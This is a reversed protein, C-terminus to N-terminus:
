AAETFHNPFTSERIDIVTSMLAYGKDTVRYRRTRPLKAILSHARLLQLLRSRRASQRRKDLDTKPRPENLHPSLDRSRFGRLHHEGRLVALFLQQDERSLPNLARRKRGRFSARRTAQDLLDHAIQPDEVVALGNLYRGNAQYAVRAFHSLMAVSKILPFWDFVREGQRTGWRRVRFCYPRNIVMEIRLVQGFKDYMKIWNGLHRHKVRYGQPTQKLDSLVESTCARPRQRGFYTLIDHSSFKLAAQQLLRPYLSALAQRDTFLIDTAFEAQTIVWRYKIGKFLDGMLPQFRKALVDFFPALKKRLLGDALQQTREADELALFVNDRRQYNLGQKDLQRALWEHGNLYVQMSMPFWTPLRVHMLGFEHDIFYFYLVLCRRFESKLRPRGEGYVIRFSPCTELRSFVCILGESVDDKVALRQAAEEMRIKRRLHQFPRQQQDALRQAHEKIRGAQQPGFDKFDKLLVKQCALFNEMSQAYGIPLHGRFILRDPCQLFGSIKDDHKHLFSNVAHRENAKNNTM